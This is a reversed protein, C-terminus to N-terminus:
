CAGGPQHSKPSCSAHRGPGLGPGSCRFDAPPSTPQTAQPTSAVVEANASGSSQHESTAEEPPKKKSPGAALSSLLRTSELKDQGSESALPSLSGAEMADPEWAEPAVPAQSVHQAAPLAASRAATTARLEARGHPPRARGLQTRRRRLRLPPSTPTGPPLPHGVEMRLM